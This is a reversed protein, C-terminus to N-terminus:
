NVARDREIAHERSAREQAMQDLRQQTRTATRVSSPSNWVSRLFLFGLFLGNLALWGLVAVLVVVYWEM